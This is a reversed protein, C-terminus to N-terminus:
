CKKRGAASKEAMGSKGYKAAGAKYAIGGAQAPSKGKAELKRVLKKFAGAM